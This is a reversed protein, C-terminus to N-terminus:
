LTFHNLPPMANDYHLLIILIEIKTTLKLDYDVSKKQLYYKLFIINNYSSVIKVKDKLYGNFNQRILADVGGKSNPLNIKM